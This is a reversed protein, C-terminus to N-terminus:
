PWDVLVPQGGVVGPVMATLVVFIMAASASAAYGFIREAGDTAHQTM